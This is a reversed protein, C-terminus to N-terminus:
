CRRGRCNAPQITAKEYRKLNADSLGLIVGTDMFVANEHIVNQLAAIQVLIAVDDAFIGSPLVIYRWHLKIM